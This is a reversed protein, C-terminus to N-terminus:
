GTKCTEGFVQPPSLGQWRRSSLCAGSWAALAWTDAPRREAMRLMARWDGALVRALMSGAYTLVSETEFASATRTKATM